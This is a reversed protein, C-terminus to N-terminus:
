LTSNFFLVTVMLAISVVLIRPIMLCIGPLDACTEQQKCNKCIKKM